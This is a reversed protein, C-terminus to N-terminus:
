KGKGYQRSTQSRVQDYPTWQIGEAIHELQETLTPYYKYATKGSPTTYKLKSVVCGTYSVTGADVTYNLVENMEACIGQLDSIQGSTLVGGNGVASEAVGPFRKFGRKINSVVRSSYLGYAAFPTMGDGTQVGHPTNPMPYDYFDTVAYDNPAKALAQLFFVDTHVSAQILAAITNPPFTGESDVPIFGMATLLGLSGLVGTPITSSVYNWTVECLQNQYQMSLTVEYLM